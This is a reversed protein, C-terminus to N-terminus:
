KGLRDVITYTMVSNVALVAHWDALVLKRLFYRAKLERTPGTLHRFFVTAAIEGVFNLKATVRPEKEDAVFETAIELSGADHRIKRVAYLAADFGFHGGVDNRVKKLLDDTRDFFRM